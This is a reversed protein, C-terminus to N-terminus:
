FMAVTVDEIQGTRERLEGVGGLEKDMRVAIM